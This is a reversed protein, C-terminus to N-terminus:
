QYNIFIGLTDDLYNTIGLDLKGDGDIDGITASRTSNGATYNVASEFSGDCDQAGVTSSLLSCLLLFRFGHHVPSITCRM